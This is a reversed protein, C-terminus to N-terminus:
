IIKERSERWVVNRNSKAFRDLPLFLAMEWEKPQIYFFQSKLNSFLYHKVCPKFFKLNAVRNLLKYSVAIRTDETLEKDTIYNYLQDMLRARLRLPLYHLNLGLFGGGQYSARGKTQTSGIPIVLPFRDYYPLTKKLKPDYAFLYISGIMPVRSLRQRDASLMRTPNASTVKIAQQRFWNRSAQEISPMYGSNTGRQLIPEFIYAVM